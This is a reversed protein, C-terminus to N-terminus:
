QLEGNYPAGDVDSSLSCRLWSISARTTVCLLLLVLRFWGTYRSCCAETATTVSTALGLTCWNCLRWESTWSWPDDSIDDGGYRFESSFSWTEDRVRLGELVGRRITGLVRVCSALSANETASGARHFNSCDAPRRRQHLCNWIWIWINTYLVKVFRLFYSLPIFICIFRWYADKHLM